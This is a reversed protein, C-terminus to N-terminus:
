HLGGEAGLLGGDAVAGEKRGRPGQLSIRQFLPVM